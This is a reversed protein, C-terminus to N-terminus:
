LIIGSATKAEVELKKILVRNLTPILRKIM